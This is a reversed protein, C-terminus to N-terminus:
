PAAKIILALVAPVSVGQAARMLTSTKCVILTQALIITVLFKPSKAVEVVDVM